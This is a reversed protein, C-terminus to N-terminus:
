KLIDLLRASEKQYKDKDDFWYEELMPLIDFRVVNEIWTDNDPQNCFYSHGICFGKGLSDDAAIRDNLEMIAEVIKQVRSDSHRAIEARFGATGFGPAMTFFSFRRRLAYDIMALSRDATNMMGIIYVREPVSFLEDTYAMRLETGRYDREILMLLEGFIRSLNGRNIEDIIFFYDKDPNNRAEMCFKYFVGNRLEFGGNKAPRYGMIFDEYSYNQHFQVMEICSDDRFGTMAYALRRASFTKGVGPAGQLIINKKNTLLAKLATLHEPEMFVENLFDSDSYRKCNNGATQQTHEKLWELGESTIVYLGEKVGPALSILKSKNLHYVAWRIRNELLSSGDQKPVKFDVDTWGYFKGVGKFLTPYDTPRGDAMCNLVAPFLKEVTPYDPEDTKDKGSLKLKNKKYKPSKVVMDWIGDYYEFLKSDGKKEMMFHQIAATPANRYGPMGMEEAAIRLNNITFIPIMNLRSYLFAIKWKVSYGLDRIKDIDEFRCSLALHAVKIILAKTKDFVEEATDGLRAYWAYKDDIRYKSNPAPKKSYRYINFKYSSGGKNSGLPRTRFEIWYCFSDKRNLNTFENITMKDLSEIPFRELFETYLEYREQATMTHNMQKEAFITMGAPYFFLQV